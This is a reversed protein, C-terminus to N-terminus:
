KRSIDNIGRIGGSRYKGEGGGGISVGAGSSKVKCYQGSRFIVFVDRTSEKIRMRTLAPDPLLGLWDAMDDEPTVRQRISSESDDFAGGSNFACAKVVSTGIRPVDGGFWDRRM